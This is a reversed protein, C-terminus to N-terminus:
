DHVHQEQNMLEIHVEALFGTKRVLSRVGMFYPPFKEKTPNGIQLLVERVESNAGNGELLGIGQCNVQHDSEM